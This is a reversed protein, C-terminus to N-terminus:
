SRRRAILTGAAVGCGFGSAFMGIKAASSVDAWFVVSASVAMVLFLIAMGLLANNSKM